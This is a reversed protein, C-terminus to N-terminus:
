ASVPEQKAETAAEPSQPIPTGAHYRSFLVAVPIVYAFWLLAQLVSPAANFAITGALVLEQISGEPFVATLDYAPQSLFPLLGLEQFEGVAYAFIGAALIVLYGGTISFFNKLNFRVAGRYMFYGLIAATTLGLAAGAFTDGSGSTSKATSWLLVSTEVGERIVALFAVIALSWTSRAVAADVQSRLNTAMARSQTAMWFIMWTVFAVAILSVIGTIAVEIQSSVNAEIGSLAFGIGLAVLVAAGAGAMIKSVQSREGLKVVYGVLISIIIAAEIGERLGILYTALM